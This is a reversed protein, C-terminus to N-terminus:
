PPLSLVFATKEGLFVYIEIVSTSLADQFFITKVEVARVVEFSVFGM